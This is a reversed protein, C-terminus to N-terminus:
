AARLLVERLAQRSNVGIRQYVDKVMGAVTSPKLGLRDAITDNQLSCGLLIALERQRPSLGFSEVMQAMKMAAPVLRQVRVGVQDANGAGGHLVSARFQFQGWENELTIAPASRSGRTQGSKGVTHGVRALLNIERALLIGRHLEDPCAALHLLERGRACAHQLDGDFGVILMGVAEDDEVFEHEGQRQDLAAALHPLVCTLRKTDEHGFRRDYESRLLMLMGSAGSAAIVPCVLMRSIGAPQLLEHYLESRLFDREYPALNVVCTQRGQIMETFSPWTETTRPRNAYDAAYRGALANTGPESASAAIVKGEADTWFFAGVSNPVWAKLAAMVAPVVMRSDVDLSCLQRIHALPSARSM